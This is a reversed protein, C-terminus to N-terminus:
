ENSGKGPKKGGGQMDKVVQALGAVAEVMGEAATAQRDAASRTEIMAMREVNAATRYAILDLICQCPHNSDIKPSGDAAVRCAPRGLLEEPVNRVGPGYWKPPLFGELVESPLTQLCRGYPISGRRPKRTERDIKYPDDTASGASGNHLTLPSVSGSFKVVKMFRGWPIREIRYEVGPKGDARPVAIQVQRVSQGKRAGLDAVQRQKTLNM